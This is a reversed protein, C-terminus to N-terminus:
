SSPGHLDLRARRGVYQKPKRSTVPSFLFKAVPRRGRPRVSPLFTRENEQALMPCPALEEDHELPGVVPGIVNSHTTVSSCAARAPPKGAAWRGYRGGSSALKLDLKFHFLM